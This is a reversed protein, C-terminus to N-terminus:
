AFIEKEIVPAKPCRSDPYDWKEHGYAKITDRWCVKRIDDGRCEDFINCTKCASDDSIMDQTLYFLNRGKESNWVEKLSQKKVDGLIFHKNWYLEECITVKGDSLVYMAYLNGSCTSREKLQKVREAKSIENLNDGIAVEDLKFEFIDKNNIVQIYENIKDINKRSAKYNKFANEGLYISYEGYAIKWSTINSYNSFFRELSQIDAVSDTASSLITNVEVELGYQSLKEFTQQIKTYYKEKVQISKLLNEKIMSDLSIQISKFGLNKLKRIIDEDIAMKTTLFPTFGSSRLKKLVAYWHKYLFFEGGIVDIRRLKLKKAEDIIEFIRPLPITCSEQKRRDAYCYICNTMCKSTFNITIDLPFNLRTFKLNVENFTFDEPCYTHLSMEKNYPVIVNKPFHILVGNFEIEVYTENQILSEFTKKILYEEIGFFLQIEAVAQEFTKANFFSLMMAHIPHIVGTFEDEAGYIKNEYIDKTVLLTKDKDHRLFYEPNFILLQENATKM